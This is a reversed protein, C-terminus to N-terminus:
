YNTEQRKHNTELKSYFIQLTEKPTMGLILMLELLFHLMDIVEYKIETINTRHNDYKKWTKWPLWERIEELENHMCAIMHQIWWMAEESTCEGEIVNVLRSPNHKNIKYILDTQMSMLSTFATVMNEPVDISKYDDECKQQNM